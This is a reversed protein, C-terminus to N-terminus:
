PFLLIKSRWYGSSASKISSKKEKEGEGEGSKIEFKWSFFAKLCDLDKPAILGQIGSANGNILRLM